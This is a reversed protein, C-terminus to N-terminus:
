RERDERIERVPDGTYRTTQAQIERALEVNARRDPHVREELIARVEAELSRHNLRARDKLRAYVDDSLNRVTLQPM